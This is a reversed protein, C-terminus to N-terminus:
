ASTIGDKKIQKKRKGGALGRERRVMGVASPVMHDNADM